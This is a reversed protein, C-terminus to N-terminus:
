YPLKLTAVNTLQRKVDMVTGFIKARSKAVIYRSVAREGVIM